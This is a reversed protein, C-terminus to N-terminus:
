KKPTKVFKNKYYRNLIFFYLTLLPHIIVFLYINFEKYTIGLFKSGSIMLEVCIDFLREM